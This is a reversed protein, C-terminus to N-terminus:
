IWHGQVDAQQKGDNWSAGFACARIGSTTKRYEPNAERGPIVGFERGEDQAAADEGRRSPHPRVTAEHNSIACYRRRVMLISIV